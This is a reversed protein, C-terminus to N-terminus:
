LRVVFASATGIFYSSQSNLLAYTIFLVIRDGWCKLLHVFDLYKAVVALLQCKFSEFTLKISWWILLLHTHTRMVVIKISPALFEDCSDLQWWYLHRALWSSKGDAFQTNVLITTLAFIKSFETTLFKILNKYCGM